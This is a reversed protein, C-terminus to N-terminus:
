WSVTDGARLGSLVEIGDATVAGAQVVVESGDRLTVYDLGFRRHVAERPVVLAERRGTAVHVPVREGVFYDGLGDVGVDAIVRGDEIRPYVQRVTGLRPPTDTNSLARNGVLVSDGQKIFRAHREPLAVRLVYNEAAILAITEGPMVVSGETLPVKLVRGAAPALVAGENTREASVQKEAKLAAITRTAVELRTRADDVRAQTAVGKAILGQARKYDIDALDREAEAAKLRAEIGATQLALKPDGITAIRAGAEVRSGEDVLLGSITGGIRARAPIEDVSEVTGFVAKLDEIQRPQVTAEGALAPLAACLLAAALPLRM